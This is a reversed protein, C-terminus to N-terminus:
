TATGKCESKRYPVVTSSYGRPLIISGPVHFHVISCCLSLTRVQVCGTGPNKVYFVRNEADLVALHTSRHRQWGRDASRLLYAVRWSEAGGQAIQEQQRQLDDHAAAISGEGHPQDM